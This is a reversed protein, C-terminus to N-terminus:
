QSDMGPRGTTAGTVGLWSSASNSSGSGSSGVGIASTIACAALRRCGLTVASPWGRKKAKTFGPLLPTEGAASASAAAYLWFRPAHRLLGGPVATSFRTMAHSACNTPKGSSEPPSSTLPPVIALWVASPAASRM